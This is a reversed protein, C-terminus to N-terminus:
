LMLVAGRVRMTPGNVKLDSPLMSSSFRMTQLSSVYTPIRPSIENLPMVFHAIYDPCSRVTNYIYDPTGGM